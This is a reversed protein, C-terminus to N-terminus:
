IAKFVKSKTYTLMQLCIRRCLSCIYHVDRASPGTLYNSSTSYTINCLNKFEASILADIHKIIVNSILQALAQRRATNRSIIACVYGKNGSGAAHMRLQSQRRVGAFVKPIEAVLQITDGGWCDSASSHMAGSGPCYQNMNNSVQQSASGQTALWWM